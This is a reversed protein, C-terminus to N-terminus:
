NISGIEGDGMKIHYVAEYKRAAKPHIKYIIMENVEMEISTSLINPMTFNDAEKKWKKALTIHPRYKKNNTALGNEKIIRQTFDYLKTLTSHEEVGLWVVRPEKPNGFYNLDGINLTFPRISIAEQLHNALARIKVEELEGFFHITIHLDDPHVYVKHKQNSRLEQQIPMALRKIDETVPIAIFFHAM